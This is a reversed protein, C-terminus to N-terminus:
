KNENDDLKYSIDRLDTIETFVGDINFNAIFSLTTFSCLIDWKTNISYLLPVTNQNIIKM